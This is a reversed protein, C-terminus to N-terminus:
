FLVPLIPSERELLTRTLLQEEQLARLEERLNRAEAEERVQAKEKEEALRVRVIEEVERVRRQEEQSARLEERM